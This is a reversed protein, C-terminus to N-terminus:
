KSHKSCLEVWYKRNDYEDPNYDKILTHPECAAFHEVLVCGCSHTIKMSTGLLEIKANEKPVIDSLFIKLKEKIDM